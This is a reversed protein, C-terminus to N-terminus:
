RTVVISWLAFAPRRSNLVGSPSQQTHRVPCDACADLRKMRDDLTLSMATKKEIAYAHKLQTLVRVPIGYVAQKDSDDADFGCGVGRPAQLLCQGLMIAQGSVRLKVTPDIM